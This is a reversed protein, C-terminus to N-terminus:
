GPSKACASTASSALDVDLAGAPVREGERYGRQMAQRAVCRITSVVNRGSQASGRSGRGPPAM